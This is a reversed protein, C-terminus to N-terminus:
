IVTRPLPYAVTVAVAAADDAALMWDGPPMYTGHEQPWSGQSWGSTAAPLSKELTRYEYNKYTLIESSVVMASSLEAFM